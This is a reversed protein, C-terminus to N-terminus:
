SARAWHRPDNPDARSSRFASPASKPAREDTEGSFSLADAPIWYEVTTGGNPLSFLNCWGGAMIARERMASLGLHGPRSLPVEPASFGVGDDSIRVRFGDDQEDLSVDVKSAHAHKRVNALAEQAIRYLVVRTPPDPERSFRDDIEIRLDGDLTAVHLRLAAALGAHDLETPHLEFLMHRLSMICATVISLLKEVSELQEPDRLDDRLMQLHMSAAVLKQVPDDHLDGAIRHRTAEEAHVLRSLLGRRQDDAFRLEENNHQLEQTREHVRSELAFNDAILQRRLARNEELKTRIEASLWVNRMAKAAHAAFQEVMAVVWRMISETGRRCELALVGIRQGGDVLLPVVLLNQADPLLAALRPDANQDLARVLQTGRTEWAREIVADLRAGPDAFPEDHSRALIELEGAPSALVVGRTFGFCACVQEVLIRSVGPADDSGALEGVMSSLQELDLKQARLEREILLSFASTALAIGVIAGVHLTAALQFDGTTGSPLITQTIRVIGAAQAYSTVFFLLSHWAAIKLGTRYSALLTVGVVHVYILFRLPSDLGGTAYTVWGLYAGDILLTLSILLLSRQRRVHRTAWPTALVPLYGVTAIAVWRWPPSGDGSTAGAAALAAVAISIRLFSLWRVREVLSVLESPEPGATPLPLM